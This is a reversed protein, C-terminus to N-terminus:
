EYSSPLYQIICSPDSLIMSGLSCVDKSLKLPQSFQNTKQMQCRTHLNTQEERLIFEMCLDEPLLVDGLIVMLFM